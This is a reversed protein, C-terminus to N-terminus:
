ALARRGLGRRGLREGGLGRELRRGRPGVGGMRLGRGCSLLRAGVGYTPRRVRAANYETSAQKGSKRAAPAAARASRLRGTRSRGNGGPRDRGTARRST